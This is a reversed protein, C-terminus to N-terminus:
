GGYMRIEAEYEPCYELVAAAVLLSAEERAIGNAEGLDLILPVGVLVGQTDLVECVATSFDHAIEDLGREEAAASEPAPAPAPQSQEAGEYSAEVPQTACGGLALAGAALGLAVASKIRMTIM